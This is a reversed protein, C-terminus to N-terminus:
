PLGVPVSTTIAILRAGGGVGDFAEPRYYLRKVVTAGGATPEIDVVSTPGVARREGGL